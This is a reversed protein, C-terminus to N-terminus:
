FTRYAKELLSLLKERKLSSLELQDIIRLSKHYYRKTVMRTYGLGGTKRVAGDIEERSALGARARAKFEAMEKFAHILPLTIVNQEYDARVPKQAVQETAEFDMCDDTLQFIMGLHRGLRAYQRVTQTEKVGLLAGGYFSAEFLAATKGAIIKLYQYVSLDFDGNHIHQNLEGLCVRSMYDPVSLKLYEEKSDILAVTKLAVCLLYDGCIVATRKGYKKQLSLEGRRLDADDIVDDHVLTALHILEIAAAFRVADRHILDESDLACTLVSVARIHKGTTLALHRMYDRILFPSTSLTRNVEEKVLDYAQQYSIRPTRSSETMFENTM